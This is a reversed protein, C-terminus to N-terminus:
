EEEIEEDEVADESESYFHANEDTRREFEEEAESVFEENDVNNIVWELYDSPVEEICEDKHAGFPVIYDSGM